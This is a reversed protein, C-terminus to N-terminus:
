VRHSDLVPSFQEERYRVFGIRIWHWDLSSGDIDAELILLREIFLVGIVGRAHEEPSPRETWERLHVDLAGCESREPREASPHCIVGDCVNIGRCSESACFTEADFVCANDARYYPADVAGSHWFAVSGDSDAYRLSVRLSVGSERVRQLTPREIRFTTGDMIHEMPFVDDAQIVVCDLVEDRWLPAFRRARIEPSFCSGHAGADHHTGADHQYGADVDHRAGADDHIMSHTQHSIHCGSASVIFAIGVLPPLRFSSKM